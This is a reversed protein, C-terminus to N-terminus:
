AGVTTLSDIIALLTCVDFACEPQVRCTRIRAVDRRQEDTLVARRTPACGPCHVDKFDVKFRQLRDIADVSVGPCTAEETAM